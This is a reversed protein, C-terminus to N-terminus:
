YIHVKLIKLMCTIITETYKTTMVSFHSKFHIPGNKYLQPKISSYTFLESLDVSPMTRDLDLDCHLKSLKEM